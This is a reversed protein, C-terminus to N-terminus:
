EAPTTATQLRVEKLRLAPKEIYFWSVAAPIATLALSPLFFL